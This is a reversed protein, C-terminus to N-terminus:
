KLQQFVELLPVGVAGSPPKSDVLEAITPAVDVTEVRRYVRAPKLGYGAFILPVYTDYSWPSGHVSTVHMGDFDAVYWHPQFVLYIDGSRQPNYNAIVARMVPNDPLAGRNLADATVAYAVGPAKQLAEAVAQEVEGLKLGAKAIAQRNLYVYPKIFGQILEGQKLHFRKRLKALSPQASVKKFDFEGADIGLSKMYGVAETSGHDAALVILTRKLGVKQDIYQLLSALTRDLRKLNDEAELSSPGFVHEVYDTSSFSISLYDPIDDQGLGENEILTEAFDATLEDGAPSMTLLGGYFKGNAPGYHHPFTRGWGPLNMEWPQDDRNAFLYFRPALMLKWEGGAYRGVKGSANWDKVWQPYDKRYYTSTVFRGQGKSFWYAQGTHGGMAIAARDKVSVSFVKAKPGYHLRIEDGITTTLIARPSRGKTTAARQTPDIEGKKDKDGGKDGILPYDADQVNYVTAGSKRDIWVNSIMGHVAPDTGTALTTHGVVTETNAHRHHADTFVVGHELLYHFGGKGMGAGYRSVLDGRLQDVTIQLVLRPPETALAQGALFLAGGLFGGLRVLSSHRM